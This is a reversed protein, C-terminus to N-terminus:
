KDSISSKLIRYVRSHMASMEEVPMNLQEAIQNWSLGQKYRLRLYTLEAETLINPLTDWINKIAQDMDFSPRAQIAKDYVLGDSVKSLNTNSFISRLSPIQGNSRRAQSSINFEELIFENVREDTPKEGFEAFFDHKFEDVLKARKRTKNPVLDNSRVEELIERRINLYAFTEFSSKSPDYNKIAKILGLSALSSADEWDLTGKLWRFFMKFAYNRSLQLYHKVLLDEAPKSKNSSFYSEWLQKSVESRSEREKEVSESEKFASKEQISKSPRVKSVVYDAIRENQEKIGGPSYPFNGNAWELDVADIFHSEAEKSFSILLESRKQERESENLIGKTAAWIRKRERKLLYNLSRDFIPIQRPLIKLRIAEFIKSAETIDRRAELSIAVNAKELIIKSLEAESKFSDASIIEEELATRLPRNTAGPSHSRRFLNGTIPSSIAARSDGNGTVQLVYDLIFPFVRDYLQRLPTGIAGPVKDVHKLMDGQFTRLNSIEQPEPPIQQLVKKSLRAVELKFDESGISSSYDETFKKFINEAEITLKNLLTERDKQEIQNLDLRRGLDRNVLTLVKEKLESVSFGNRPIKNQEGDSSGLLKSVAVCVVDQNKANVNASFIWAIIFMLFYKRLSMM